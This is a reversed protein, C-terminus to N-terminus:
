HAAAFVHATPALGFFTMDIMFITNMADTM